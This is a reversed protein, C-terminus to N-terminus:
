GAAGPVQPSGRAATARARPHALAPIGSAVPGRIGDLLVATAGHRPVDLGEISDARAAMETIVNMVKAVSAAGAGRGPGVHARILDSLGTREALAAPPVLGAYGLSIRITSARRCRVAPIPLNCRVAEHKLRSRQTSFLLWRLDRPM